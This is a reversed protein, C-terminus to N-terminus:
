DRQRDRNTHHTNWGFAHRAGADGALGFSQPKSLARDASFGAGNDRVSLRIKKDACRLSVNVKTARSHKAVNQLSEQAVRYIVDRGARPLSDPLAAGRYEAAIGHTYRFRKILLRVATELGLRELVSPSLAAIIRGLEITTRAALERVEICVYWEDPGCQEVITGPLWPWRERDGHEEQQSRPYRVEVPSEDPFKGDNDEDHM